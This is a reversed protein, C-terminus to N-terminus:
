SVAAAVATTYTLAYQAIALGTIVIEDMLVGSSADGFLEIRGVKKVSWGSALFRALTMSNEDFCEFDFARFYNKSRWTGTLTPSTHSLEKKSVWKHNLSFAQGHIEFDIHPKWTRVTATGLVADGEAAKFTM